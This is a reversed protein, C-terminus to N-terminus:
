NQSFKKGSRHTHGACFRFIIKIQIFKGGTEPDEVLEPKYVDYMLRDNPNIDKSLYYRGTESEDPYYHTRESPDHDSYIYGLKIANRLTRVAKRWESSIQRSKYDRQYSSVNDIVIFRIPYNRWESNIPFPSPTVFKDGSDVFLKHRLIIM